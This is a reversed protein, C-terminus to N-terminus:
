GNLIKLRCLSCIKSLRHSLYKTNKYNLMNAPNQLVPKIKYTLMYVNNKDLSMSNKINKNKKVKNGTTSYTLM